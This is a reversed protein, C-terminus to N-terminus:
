NNTEYNKIKKNDIILKVDCFNKIKVSHAIFIILRNKKIKNILDLFKKESDLDFANTAEDLIILKPNTVLARAVSIRQKQGGSLSSGLNGVNTELGEPLKNVFSDLGVLKLVKELDKESINKRGFIINNRISSNILFNTQSVYGINKRWNDSFLNLNKDNIYISGEEPKLMGSILDVFTSKGSGNPGEIYVTFDKILKLNLREFIYHDKTYFFSLNSIKIEFDKEFNFEDYKLDNSIIEQQEYIKSYRNANKVVEDIQFKSTKIAQISQNYVVFIPIMRLAAFGFLGLTPITELINIKEVDLYILVLFVFFVLIIELIYRPLKTVVAETIVVKSIKNENAKFLKLFYSASGILKIDRLNIISESINKFRFKEFNIKMESLNLFLKRFFIIFILVFLSFLFFIFFTVTSNVFFLYGVIFILLISNKFIEIYKMLGQQVFTGVDNLIHRTMYAHDKKFIEQWEAHLFYSYSKLSMDISIERCYKQTTYEFFLLLLIKILLVLIFLFSITYISESNFGFYDEFYKLFIFNNESNDFIISLLPIILSFNILELIVILLLIFLLILSKIRNKKGIVNIIELFQKVM